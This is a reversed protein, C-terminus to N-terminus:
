ATSATAGIEHAEGLSLLHAFDIPAASLGALHMAIQAQVATRIRENDITSALRLSETTQRDRRLRDYLDTARQRTDTAQRFFLFAVGDLVIGPVAKVLGMLDIASTAAYLIWAFGITAAAVSFWFQVGAQTLAQRHYSSVLNDVFDARAQTGRIQTQIENSIKALNVKTRGLQKQLIEEIQKSQAVPSSVKRFQDEIQKETKQLPRNAKGALWTTLYGLIPSLVTLLLAVSTVEDM